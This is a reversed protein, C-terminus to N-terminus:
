QAESHEYSIEVFDGIVEYKIVITIIISLILVIVNLCGVCGRVVVFEIMFPDIICFELIRRTSIIIKIRVIVAILTLIKM